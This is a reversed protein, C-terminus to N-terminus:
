HTFVAEAAARAEQESPFSEVKGRERDTWCSGSWALEPDRTNVILWRGHQDEEIQFRDM